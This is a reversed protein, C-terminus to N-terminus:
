ARGIEDRGVVVGGVTEVELGEGELVGEVDDLGLLCGALEHTHDHREAPLRRQLEGSLQRGTEDEAGRGLRDVQCLVSPGGTKALRPPKLASSIAAATRSVSGSTSATSILKNQGFTFARASKSSSARSRSTSVSIRPRSPETVTRTGFSVAALGSRRAASM